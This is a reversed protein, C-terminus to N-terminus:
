QGITELLGIDAVFFFLTRYNVKFIIFVNSAYNLFMKTELFLLLFFNKHHSILILFLFFNSDMNKNLNFLM